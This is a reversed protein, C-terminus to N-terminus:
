RLFRIPRNCALLNHTYVHVYTYTVIVEAPTASEGDEIPRKRGRRTPTKKASGGGRAGGGRGRGARGGPTRRPQPTSNNQETKRGSAGGAKSGRRSGTSVLSM